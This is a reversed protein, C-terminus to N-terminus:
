RRCPVCAVEFDTLRTALDFDLDAEVGLDAEANPSEPSEANGPHQPRQPSAKQTRRIQWQRGKRKGLDVNTTRGPQRDDLGLSSRRRVKVEAAAVTEEVSESLPRQTRRFPM